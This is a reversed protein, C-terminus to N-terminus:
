EIDRAQKLKDAITDPKAPLEIGHTGGLTNLREAAKYPQKLDIGQAACLVKVIQAWTRREKPTLEDPREDKQGSPRDDQILSKVEDTVPLGKDLAWKVLERPHFYACDCHVTEHLVGAAISKIASDRYRMFVKISRLDWHRACRDNFPPLNINADIASALEGEPNIGLLYFIGEQLKWTGLRLAHEWDVAPENLFREKEVRIVVLSVDHHQKSTQPEADTVSLVFERLANTRVVLMSDDPIGGAPFYFREPRRKGQGRPALSDQLQCIQGDAGEVFAGDLCTLTVEPGGTLQQYRHEIELEESGIMPLDWIGTLTVVEDGLRLFRDESIQLEKIYSRPPKDAPGVLSAPFDRWTVDEIGVTAGCRGKAHNVLNVSLRLRGDLAFRLIDAESVDECFIGSLHKAADAVTVWEKLNFVKSM